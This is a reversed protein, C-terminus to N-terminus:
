WITCDHKVKHLRTSFLFAYIVMRQPFHIELSTGLASHSYRGLGLTHHIPHHLPLPWVPSSELLPLRSSFSLLHTLKKPLFYCWFYVYVTVEYRIMVPIPFVAKLEGVPLEHFEQPFLLAKEKERASETYSQLSAQPPWDAQIDLLVVYQAEWTFHNRSKLPCSVCKEEDRSKGVTYPSDQGLFDFKEGEEPESSHLKRGKICCPDTRM